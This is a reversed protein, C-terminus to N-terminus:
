GERTCEYMMIAAAQPLSLSDAQGAGPICWQEDALLLLEEPLGHSESGMLLATKRACAHPMAGKRTQSGALFYHERVRPLIEAFDAEPIVRLHFLSGMSSRVVKPNTFDVSGASLIITGFGFWHATRMLAGLNGPNNIQYLLLIHGADLAFLDTIGAQPPMAAIAMIGEPTKDQSLANWETESLGYVDIQEPVASLFEDWRAGKKGAALIARTEWVSNLLERVVKYGEALFLGEQRRYKAQNLKEWLKLQARLPKRLTVSHTM